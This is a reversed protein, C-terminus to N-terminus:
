PDQQLFRARALEKKLQRIEVGLMYVKFTLVGSCIFFFAALFWALLAHDM